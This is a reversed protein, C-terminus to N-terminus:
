LHNIGHLLSYNYECASESASALVLTGMGDTEYAFSPTLELSSFNKHNEM